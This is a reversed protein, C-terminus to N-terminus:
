KSVRAGMCVRTHPARKLFDEFSGGFDAGFKRGFFHGPRHEREAPEIKFFGGKCEIAEM